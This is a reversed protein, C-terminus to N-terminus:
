KESTIPERISGGSDIDKALLRFGPEESHQKTVAAASFERSSKKKNKKNLVTEMMVACGLTIGTHGLILM